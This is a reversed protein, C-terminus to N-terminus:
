VAGTGAATWVAASMRQLLDRLGEAARGVLQAGTTADALTPDGIVGGVNLDSTMWAWQAEGDPPLDQPHRMPAPAAAEMRVLDPRLHLMISTEIWGAHWDRPPADAPAVQSPNALTAWHVQEALMGCEARLRMAALAMVPPNGGHGNFLLIRSLGSRKVWRGLECWAKDLINGDLSLTGPFGGHEISWGITQTPLVVAFYPPGYEAAARLIGDVIFADTGTPLHPGHQETAAVPLIAVTAPPLDHFEVSRMDQWFRLM